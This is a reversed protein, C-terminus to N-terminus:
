EYVSLAQEASINSGVHCAAWSHLINGLVQDSHDGLECFIGLHEVM